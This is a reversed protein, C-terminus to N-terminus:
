IKAKEAVIRTEIVKLDEPATTQGAVWARIIPISELDLKAAAAAAAAKERVPAILVNYEAETIETYGAPILAEHEPRDATEVENEANKYYKM